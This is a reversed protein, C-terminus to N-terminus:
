KKSSQVRQRKGGCEPKNNNRSNINDKTSHEEPLAKKKVHSINKENRETEKIGENRRQKYTGANGRMGGDGFVRGTVILVSTKM